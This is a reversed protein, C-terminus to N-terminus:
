IVATYIVCINKLWDSLILQLFRANTSVVLGVVFTDPDQGVIWCPVDSRYIIARSASCCLQDLRFWSCRSIVTIFM